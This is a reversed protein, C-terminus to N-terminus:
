AHTFDDSTPTAMERSLVVTRTDELETLDITDVSIRWWSFSALLIGAPVVAWEWVDDRSFVLITLALAFLAGVQAVRRVRRTWPQTGVRILAHGVDAGPVPLALFVGWLVAFRALCAIVFDLSALGTIPDTLARDINFGATMLASGFALTALVGGITSLFPRASPRWTGLALRLTRDAHGIQRGFVRVAALGIVGIAGLVWVSVISAPSFVGTSRAELAWWGGLLVAVVTTSAPLAYRGHHM